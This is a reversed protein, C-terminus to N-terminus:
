SNIEKEKRIGDQENGGKLNEQFKVAKLYSKYQQFNTILSSSLFIMGAFLNIILVIKYWLVLDVYIFMYIVSTILGLLIFTLSMMSAEYQTRLDVKEMMKALPSPFVYNGKSNEHRRKIREKRKQKM